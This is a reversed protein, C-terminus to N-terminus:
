RYSILIIEPKGAEELLECSLIKPDYMTKGRKISFLTATMDRASQESDARVILAETDEYEINDLRELLYLPM